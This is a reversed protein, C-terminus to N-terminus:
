TLLRRMEEQQVKKDNEKVEALLKVQKEQALKHMQDLYDFITEEDHQRRDGRLTQLFEILENAEKM